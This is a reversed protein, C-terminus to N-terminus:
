PTALERGCWPATFAVLVDQEGGIKEKFTTDTLMEVSSPAAKKAKPKIGTKGNIFATLSELDRGSKYDEPTASKGDFWKLTPFGQVGWKRGLEKHADADVKAITVDNFKGYGTDLLTASDGDRFMVHNASLWDRQIFAIEPPLIM